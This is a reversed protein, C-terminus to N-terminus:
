GERTAVKIPRMTPARPAEPQRTRSPEDAGGVLRLPSPEQLDARDLASELEATPALTSKIRGFPLFKSGEIFQGTGRRDPTLRDWQKQRESFPQPGGM